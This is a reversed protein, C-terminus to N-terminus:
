AAGESAQVREFDESTLDVIVTQSRFKYDPDFKTFDLRSQGAKMSICGAIEARTVFRRPIKGVMKTRGESCRVIVTIPQRDRYMTYITWGVGLFTGIQIMNALATVGPSALLDTLM